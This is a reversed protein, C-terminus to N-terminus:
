QEYGVARECALVPAPRNTGAVGLVLTLAAAGAGIKLM